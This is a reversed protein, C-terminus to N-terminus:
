RRCMFSPDVPTGKYLLTVLVTGPVLPNGWPRDFFSTYPPVAEGAAFYPGAVYSYLIQVGRFAVSVFSTGRERVVAIVESPFPLDFPQDAEAFIGRNRNWGEIDVCHFVGRMEPIEYMPSPEEEPIEANRILEKRQVLATHEKAARLAEERESSMRRDLMELEGDLYAMTMAYIRRCEDDFWYCRKHLYDASRRILQIKKRAELSVLYQRAAATHEYRATTLRRELDALESRMREEVIQRRKSPRDAAVLLGCLFILAIASLFSSSSRKM